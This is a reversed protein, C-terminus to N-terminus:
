ILCGGLREKLADAIMAACAEYIEYSGGIPDSVNKDDALLFCKKEVQPWVALIQRRHSECMVFVIDSDEVLRETVPRSGHSAIDAGMAKCVAIAEPSAGSRSLGMVGASVVKYGMQDLEDVECGLKQALYKRCLGEAMPSRCTNGTCVFLIQVKWMAKIQELSYGGERLVTIDKKGIKVVTSNKGGRCRGGGLVMDIKGEFYGMVEDASVAPAAAAPNASPAVVPCDAARLLKAAILNDPCRVGISSDRYLCRFVEDGVVQRQKEVAEADMEFVVTLPGPWANGILKEARLSMRPVYKEIEGAVGIHLTYRKESQRGKVGDLRGLSDGAVRCAIGYVTETPFAVLGGAEVVAAARKIQGEDPSGADLKILETDM